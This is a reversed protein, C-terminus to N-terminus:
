RAVNLARQARYDRSAAEVTRSKRLAAFRLTSPSVAVDSSRGPRKEKPRMGAPTEGNRRETSISSDGLAFRSACRVWLGFQRSGCVAPRPKPLPAAVFRFALHPQNTTRAGPM